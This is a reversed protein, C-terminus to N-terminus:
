APTVSRPAYSGRRMNESTRIKRRTTKSSLFPSKVGRDLHTIVRTSREAGRLKRLTNEAVKQGRNHIATRPRTERM